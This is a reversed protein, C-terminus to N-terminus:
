VLPPSFHFVIFGPPSIQEREPFPSPQSHDITVYIHPPPNIYIVIKNTSHTAIEHILVNTRRIKRYGTCTFIPSLITLSNYISCLKQAPQPFRNMFWIHPNFSLHFGLLFLLVCAGWSRTGLCHSELYSWPWVLVWVSFYKACALPVHDYRAQSMSGREEHVTGGQTSLSGNRTHNDLALTTMPGKKQARSQLEGILGIEQSCRTKKRTEKWLIATYISISMYLYIYFM